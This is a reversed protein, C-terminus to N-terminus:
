NEPAPLIEANFAGIGMSPPVEVEWFVAGEGNTRKVPLELIEGRPSVIRLFVERDMEAFGDATKVVAHIPNAEGRIWEDPFGIWEVVFESSSPLLSEPPPDGARPPHNPAGPLVPNWPGALGEGSSGVESLPTLPAAEPAGGGLDMLIWRPKKGSTQLDMEIFVHAENSVVRSNWGLHLMLRQFLIARHRCVGRKQSIMRDELAGAGGLLPAQEFSRFFALLAVLVERKELEGESIGAGRLIGQAVGDSPYEVEMVDNWEEWWSSPPAWYSLPSLVIGTIRVPGSQESSIGFEGEENQMLRLPRADEAQIELIQMRPASSPFPVPANEPLDLMLEFTLTEWEHDELSVRPFAELSKWKPVEDVPFRRQAYVRKYLGLCPQFVCLVQTADVRETETDLGELRSISNKGGFLPNSPLPHTDMEKEAESLRTDAKNPLREHFIPEPNVARAPETYGLVSTLTQGLTLLIFARAPTFRMM